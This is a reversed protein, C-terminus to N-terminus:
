RSPHHERYRDGEVPAPMTTGRPVPLMGPLLASAVTALAGVVAVVGLPVPGLGHEAAVALALVTAPAPLLQVAHFRDARTGSGILANAM